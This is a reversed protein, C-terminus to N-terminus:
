LKASTKVYSRDARVLVPLWVTEPECAHRQFRLKRNTFSADGDSRLRRKLSAEGRVSGASHWRKETPRVRTLLKARERIWGRSVGVGRGKTKRRRRSQTQHLVSRGPTQPTSVRPADPTGSTKTRAQLTVEQVSAVVGASSSRERWVVSCSVKWTKKMIQLVGHLVTGIKTHKALM